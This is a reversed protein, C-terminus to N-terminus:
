RDLFAGGIKSSGKPRKPRALRELKNIDPADVGPLVLHPWEEKKREGSTAVTRIAAADEAEALFWCVYFRMITRGGAILGRALWKQTMRRAHHEACAGPGGLRQGRRHNPDPKHIRQGWTCNPAFDDAM